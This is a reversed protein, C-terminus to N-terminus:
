YDIFSYIFYFIIVCVESTIILFIKGCYYIETELSEFVNYSSRTKDLM